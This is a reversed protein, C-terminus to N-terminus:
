EHSGPIQSLTYSGLTDYSSLLEESSICLEGHVITSYRLFQGSKVQTTCSFSPAGPVTVDCSDQSGSHSESVTYVPVHQFRIPKSRPVAHSLSGM